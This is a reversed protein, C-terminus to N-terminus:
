EKPADDALRPAMKMLYEVTALPTSFNKDDRYGLFLFHFWGDVQYVSFEKLRVPDYKGVFKYAIGKQALYKGVAIVDAVDITPVTKYRYDRGELRYIIGDSDLSYCSKDGPWTLKVGGISINVREVFTKLGSLGHFPIRGKYYDVKLLIFHTARGVKPMKEVTLVMEPVDVGSTLEVGIGNRTTLVIKGGRATLRMAVGDYKPTSPADMKVNTDKVDVAFEKEQVCVDGPVFDFTQHKYSNLIKYGTAIEDGGLGHDYDLFEKDDSQTRLTDDICVSGMEARLYELDPFLHMGEFELLDGHHEIQTLANYSTYIVDDKLVIEELPVQVVNKAGPKVDTMTIKAQCKSAKKGDGSGIDLVTQSEEIRLYLKQAQPPPAMTPKTLATNDFADILDDLMADVDENDLMNELVNPDDLDIMDYLSELVDTKDVLADFKEYYPNPIFLTEQVVSAGSSNLGMDKKRPM